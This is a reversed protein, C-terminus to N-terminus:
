TRSIHEPLVPDRSSRARTMAHPWASDDCACVSVDGKDQETLRIM